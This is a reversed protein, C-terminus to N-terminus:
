VEVGDDRLLSIFTPYDLVKVGWQSAHHAKWTDTRSAVLYNTDPEVKNRVTFGAKIAADSLENRVIHKGDLDKGTGTFVVTMSDEM